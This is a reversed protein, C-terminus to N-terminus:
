LRMSNHVMVKRSDNHFLLAILVELDSSMAEVPRVKDVDLFIAEEYDDICELLIDDILNLQASLSIFM